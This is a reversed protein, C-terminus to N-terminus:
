TLNWLQKQKLKFHKMQSENIRAVPKDQDQKLCVSAGVCFLAPSGLPSKVHWSIEWRWESDVSSSREDCATTKLTLQSFNQPLSEFAQPINAGWKKFQSQVAQLDLKSLVERERVFLFFTWLYFTWTWSKWNRKVCSLNNYILLM